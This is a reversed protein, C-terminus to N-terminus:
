LHHALMKTFCIYALAAAANFLFERYSLDLFGIHRRSFLSPIIDIVDEDDHSRM